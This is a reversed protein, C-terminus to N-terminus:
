FIHIDSLPLCPQSKLGIPAASPRRTGAGHMRPLSMGPRVGGSELLAGGAGVVQWQVDFDQRHLAAAHGDWLQGVLGRSEASKGSARGSRPPERVDECVWVAIIIGGQLPAPRYCVMNSLWLPRSHCACPCAHGHSLHSPPAALAALAALAPRSCPSFPVRGSCKPQQSRVRVM